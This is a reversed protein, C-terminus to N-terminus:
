TFLNNYKKFFYPSINAISHGYSQNLINKKFKDQRSLNLNKKGDLLLVFEKFAQLIEDSTNEIVNYNNKIALHISKYQMYKDISWLNKYSQVINKQKIIKPIYLSRDTLAYPIDVCNLQLLPKELLFGMGAPGSNCCIFGRSKYVLYFQLFKNQHLDTNIEKYNEGFDSKIDHSNTLRIINYNKKILFNIGAKYNIINCNRIYSSNIYDNERLHMVFTKKLNKFRFKNKLIKECKTFYNKSLKFYNTNRFKTQTYIRPWEYKGIKKANHDYFNDAIAGSCSIFNTYILPMSIIYLFINKVFIINKNKKFIDLVFSFTQNKPVFVIVKKNKQLQYKSMISLHHCITGLQLYNVQIFRYKTFYFVLSIPLYVIKLIDIYIKHFIKIKIILLQKIKKQHIYVFYNNILNKYTIISPLNLPLSFIYHLDPRFLVYEIIKKIIKM